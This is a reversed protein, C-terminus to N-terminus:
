GEIAVAQRLLNAAESSKGMARYTAAASTLVKPVGPKLVLASKLAKEARANDHAQAALSAVSLQLDANRPDNELLPQYLAMAKANNGSASYLRALAAN